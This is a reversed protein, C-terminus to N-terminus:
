KKKKEKSRFLIKFERVINGFKTFTLWIARWIWGVPLLVPNAFIPCFSKMYGVGPFLRSLIFRLKGKERIGKEIRGVDTIEFPSMLLKELMARRDSPLAEPVLEKGGDIIEFILERCNREFDAIGLPRLESAVYDLDLDRKARLYVYIDLLFRINMCEGYVYHKYGHCIHHIYFDEDSFHYGFSNGDDKILKEKINKCYGRLPGHRDGYLEVHMEYNYIPEKRYIDHFEKNYQTVKYGESVFFDRVARRYEPDFLIDNDSMQRLGLKPYFDKLVVGKLPMYWIGREELFSVIRERESDLLLNKRVAKERSVHFASLFGEAGEPALIDLGESVLALMGSAASVSYLTRMSEPDTSIGGISKGSLALACLKLM